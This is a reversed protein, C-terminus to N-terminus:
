AAVDGQPPRLPRLKALRRLNQATAALLFEDRAGCPGRLRLRAMRLIRKLHAFLMEVKKRRHRSLEYEPTTAIARAVDRADENLDRPVKRMPMKPCCRQKLECTDCDGKRARYLRTGEATIGSRPTEYTRHFQKLEKGAPCIYRDNEAEWTFDSRSFTGDTRQSKDFVPIHPAIKKEKVLWALNDASGYASDAVVYDPKLGFRDETRQIMTRSCITLLFMIM